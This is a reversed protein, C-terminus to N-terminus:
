KSLYLWILPQKFSLSIVQIRNKMKIAERVLKIPDNRSGPTQIANFVTNWLANGNELIRSFSV